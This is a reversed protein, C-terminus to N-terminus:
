FLFQSCGKFKRYFDKIPHVYADASLVIQTVNNYIKEFHLSALAIIPATNKGEPEVIFNTSKLYKETKLISKKLIENTGIYIRSIDTLTLARDITERLLSKNSYVKQLQKPSSERSRPWFREGKGGALILVVPKETKNVTNM